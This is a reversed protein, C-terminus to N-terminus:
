WGAGTKQSEESEPVLSEKAMEILVKWAETNVTIFEKQGIRALPQTLENHMSIALETRPLLLDSIDGLFGWKESGTFPSVFATVETSTEIAYTCNDLEAEHFIFPITFIPADVNQVKIDKSIDLINNNIRIGLHFPCISNVTKYTGNKHKKLVDLLPELLPINYNFLWSTAKAMENSIGWALGCSRAAKAVMFQLESHSVNTTDTTYTKYPWWALDTSMIEWPHPAHQFMNIKIWKKSMPNFQTAGFFATLFRLLSLPPFDKGVLNGYIEGYPYENILLVRRAIDRYCPNEELFQGLNEENNTNQLKEYLQNVEKGVNLPLELEVGHDHERRGLRPELKNASVYWFYEEAKKDNDFDIDLAWQYRKKVIEKFSTINMSSKLPFVKDEDISMKDVVDHVFDGYPELMLTVCMEQASVSLNEECWLYLKNWPFRERLLDPNLYDKLRSLDKKLNIINRTQDEDEVEWTALRILVQKLYLSFQQLAIPSVQEIMRVRALASEKAWNWQHILRPHNFIYPGLGLGTSNGVGFVKKLSPDLPTAKEGGKQLAMHEVLDISFVRMLWVVLMEVYFPRKLEEHKAVIRRDACGFKGSGYVATSRMLYGVELIKSIEPQKGESLCDVVYKFLRYSKNMRALSLETTHYRGAEQKPVNQSLRFIDTESPIGDFLVFTADWAEAIVRDEQKEEPLDHSFGVLSYIHHPTQIAYIAVGEGQSNLEWRKREFQWRQEKAMELLTRMFSLKTQHVGGMRAFNMVTEPKRLEIKM